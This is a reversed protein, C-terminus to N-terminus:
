GSFNCSNEKEQVYFLEDRKLEMMTTWGPTEMVQTYANVNILILPHNNFDITIVTSKM